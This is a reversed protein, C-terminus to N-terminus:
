LFIDSRAFKADVYRRYKEDVMYRPKGSKTLVSKAEIAEEETEFVDLAPNANGGSAMILRPEQDTNAARGQLWRVAARAAAANGSDIANNYDELEQPSLNSIAWQSLQRFQQEGGVEAKIAEEDQASIVAPGSGEEDVRFGAEYREILSSPIGMAAALKERMSSTDDGRQVAADWQALDIGEREAASVVTEGYYGVAEDRSFSEVPESPQPPEAQEQERPQGLKRQLELYAKELEEPTEFKGALRQQEADVEDGEVTVTSYDPNSAPAPPEITGNEIAADEAQIEQLFSALDDKGYGPGALAVQEPTPQFTDTSM